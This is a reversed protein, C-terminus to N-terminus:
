SQEHRVAYVAAESRTEVGLKALINGVHKSATRPSIFLTEGIERDSMGAVILRLVEQERSTLEVGGTASEDAQLGKLRLVASEALSVMEEMTLRRGEDFAAQFAEEGIMGTTLTTATEDRARETEWGATGGRERLERAAGFLRAASAPDRTAVAAAIGSMPSALYWEGGASVLQAISEHYHDVATAEDGADHSMVGLDSFRVGAFLADGRERDLELAREILPIGTEPKGAAAIFLGAEALGTALWFGQAHAELLAVAREGSEIGADMEGRTIHIYANMAWIQAEAVPDNWTRCTEFAVKVLEEGRVFDGAMSAGIMAAYEIWPCLPDSPQAEKLLLREYWDRLETVLGRHWWWWFLSWALRNLQRVDNQSDLWNLAAILNAHEVNLRETWAKQDAGRIGAQGQEAFALFFEAHAQGVLQHEDTRSLVERAFDRVTALMHFRSDGDPLQRQLLLSKDLLSAIGDIVSFTPDDDCGGGAKCVAAAADIGFGGPFISLRRFLAQENPELLNYSWSITDHLSRQRDPADRPGGALLRLHDGDGGSLRQLMAAPTLFRTRAAALEIALPLGDLEECIAQVTSANEDTLEFASNVAQARAVFLQVAEPPDNGEAADGGEVSLSPVPFHQEGRIRLLSRSTVLFTPGPCANLLDSLFPAADVLQEFNDLVLLCRRNKLYAVIDEEVSRTGSQRINLARVIASPVHDPTSVTALPVFWVGDPFHPVAAEAVTIALRTKGVGGPGSITVLRQGPATALKLVDQITSERGVFSTLLRPLTVPLHASPGVALTQM